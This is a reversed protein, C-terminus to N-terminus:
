PAGAGVDFHIHNCGDEFYRHPAPSLSGLCQMQGLGGNPLLNAIFQAFQKYTATGLNSQTAQVGNVNGVDVARGKDHFAGDCKGHGSALANISFSYTQGAVVIAQLLTTNIPGNVQCYVVPQGNAVKEMDSRDSPQQFTIKSPVLALIKQACTRADNCGATAINGGPGNIIGGGGAPAGAEPELGGDNDKTYVANMAQVAALELLCSNPGEPNAAEPNISPNLCDERTKAKGSAVLENLPADIMEQTVNYQQVGHEKPIPADASVGHALTHSLVGLFPAFFRLPNSFISALYDQTQSTVSGVSTPMLALFRAGFANPNQIDTIRSILDQQRFETAENIAIRRDAEAAATPSVKVCGLVGKCFDNATVDAGTDIATFLEGDREAGTVVPPFIWQFVKMMVEGIFKKVDNLFPLVATLADGIVGLVGGILDGLFNVVQGITALYPVFIGYHFIFMEKQYGATFSAANASNVQKEPPLKQGGARNFFIRQFDASKHVDAVKLMVANVEDGSARNKTTGDIGEKQNDAATAFIAFTAAYQAARYDAIIQGIINHWVVDDIRAALDIWGIIPIAKTATQKLLSESVKKTVADTTLTEESGAVESIAENLALRAAEGDANAPRGENPNPNAKAADPCSAKDGLICSLGRGVRDGYSSMAATRIEGDIFKSAEKGKKGDYLKWKRIGYANRMWSRIHRRILVLPYKTASRTYEKTAAKLFARSDNSSLDQNIYESLPDDISKTEYPGTYTVKIRGRASGAEVKIGHNKLLTKEFDNKAMNGFLLDVPGGTVINRGIDVNAKRALYYVALVEAREGVAYNARKFEDKIVNQILSEMKLPLLAIVGLIASILVAGIGGGAIMKKKNRGFMQGLKGGVGGKSSKSGPGGAPNNQGGSAGPDPAGGTRSGANDSKGGPIVRLNPRGQNKANDGMENAPAEPKTESEPVARLDRNVPEGGEGGGEISGGRMRAKRAARSDLYEPQDSDLPRAPEAM